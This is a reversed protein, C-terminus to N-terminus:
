PKSNLEMKAEVAPPSRLRFAAAKQRKFFYAECKKLKAKPSVLCFSAALGTVPLFKFFYIGSTFCCVRNLKYM